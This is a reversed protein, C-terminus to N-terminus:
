IGASRYFPFSSAGRWHRLSTLPWSKRQLLTLSLHDYGSCTKWCDDVSRILKRTSTRIHHNKDSVHQIISTHSTSTKIAVVFFCNVAQSIVSKAATVPYLNGVSNIIAFKSKVSEASVHFTVNVNTIQNPHGQIISQSFTTMFVQKKVKAQHWQQNRQKQITLANAYKTLMVRHTSFQQPKSVIHQKKNFYVIWSLTLSPTILTQVSMKHSLAQSSFSRSEEELSESLNEAQHLDRHTTAGLQKILLDSSSLNASTCKEDRALRETTKM